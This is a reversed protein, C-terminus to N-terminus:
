FQTNSSVGNTEVNISILVNVSTIFLSSIMEKFRNQEFSEGKYTIQFCQFFETSDLCLSICKTVARSSHCEYQKVNVIGKQGVWFTYLVCM